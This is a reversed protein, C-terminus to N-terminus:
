AQSDHTGPVWPTVLLMDPPIFPLTSDKSYEVSVNPVKDGYRRRILRRQIFGGHEILYADNWVTMMRKRVIGALGLVAVEESTPTHENYAREFSEVKTKIREFMDPWEDTIDKPNVPGRGLHEESFDGTSSM